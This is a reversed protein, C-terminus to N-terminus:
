GDSNRRFYETNYDQDCFMTACHFGEEAKITLPFLGVDDATFDDNEPFGTIHYKDRIIGPIKLCKFVAEEIAAKGMDSKVEVSYTRNECGQDGWVKEEVKIIIQKDSYNAHLLLAEKKLKEAYKQDPEHGLRPYDYFLQFIEWLSPSLPDAGKQGKRFFEVLKAVYPPLDRYSSSLRYLRDMSEERLSHGIFKPNELLFKIVNLIKERDKGPAEEIANVADGLYDSLYFNHFDTHITTMRSSDFRQQWIYKIGEIDGDKIARLYDVHVRVLKYTTQLRKQEKKFAAVVAKEKARRQFFDSIVSSKKLALWSGTLLMGGGVVAVAKTRDSSVDFISWNPKYKNLAYACGEVSLLTMGTALLTHDRVWQVVSGTKGVADLCASNVLVCLLGGCAVRAISPIIKKM